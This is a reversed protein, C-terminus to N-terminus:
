RQIKKKLRPTGKSLVINSSPDKLDGLVQQYSIEGILNNESIIAVHEVYDTYVRGNVIKYSYYDKSNQIDSKINLIQKKHINKIKNLDINLKIKGYILKFFFQFTKKFCLQFIKKFKM